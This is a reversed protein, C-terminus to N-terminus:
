EHNAESKMVEVYGFGLSNKEGFGSYYGIRLLEPPATLDFSYLYGRIRTEEKSGSKVTALRSKCPEYWKFEFNKMLSDEMAADKELEKFSLYKFFLNQVLRQGYEPHSPHLFEKGSKGNIEVPKSLCIPSKSRFHMRAKFEPASLSEVQRVYFRCQHRGDVIDLQQNLFLGSLFSEVGKQTLFSFHLDVQRDLILLGGDLRRFRRLGIKSFTFHKFHKGKVMYGQQHLWHAFDSDGRNIQKYLWASVPYFYNFPLINFQSDVQLKLKLRM